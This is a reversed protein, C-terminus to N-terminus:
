RSRRLVPRVGFVFAVVQDGLGHAAEEVRDGSRRVPRRHTRRQLLHLEGGAAVARDGDHSREQAAVLAALAAVDIQGHHLGRDARGRHEDLM